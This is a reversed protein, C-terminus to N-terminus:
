DNPSIIEFIFDTPMSASSGIKISHYLGLLSQIRILTGRDIEAHKNRDIDGSAEYIRVQKFDDSIEYKYFIDGHEEVTKELYYTIDEKIKELM